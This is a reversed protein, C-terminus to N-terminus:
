LILSSLILTIVISVISITSIFNYNNFASSKLYGGMGPAVSSGYWYTGPETLRFSFSKGRQILPAADAINNTTNSCGFSSGTSCIIFPYDKGGVNLDQRAFFSFQTKLPINPINVATGFDTGQISLKYVLGNTNGAPCDASPGTSICQGITVGIFGPPATDIQGQSGTSSSGTVALLQFANSSEEIDESDIGDYMSSFDNNNNNNNLAYTKIFLVSLVIALLILKTNM